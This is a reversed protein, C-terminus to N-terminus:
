WEGMHAWMGDLDQSKFLPCKEKNNAKGTERWKKGSM